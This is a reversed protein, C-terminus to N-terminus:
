ESSRAPCACLHPGGRQNRPPLDQHYLHGLVAMACYSHMAPLPVCCACAYCPTPNVYLHRSSPSTRPFSSLSTSHEAKTRATRSRPFTDQFIDQLPDLSSKSSGQDRVEVRVPQGGCTRCDSGIRRWSNCKWACCALRVDLPNNNIDKLEQVLTARNTSHSLVSRYYVRTIGEPHAQVVTLVGDGCRIM